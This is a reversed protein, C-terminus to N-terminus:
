LIITHHNQVPISVLVRIKLKFWNVRSLPHVHMLANIVQFNIPMALAM